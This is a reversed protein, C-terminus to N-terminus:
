ILLNNNIKYGLEYLFVYASDNNFTLDHIIEINCDNFKLNTINSIKKLKWYKSDWYNPLLDMFISSVAEVIIFILLRRFDGMGRLVACVANYGLIFPFGLFTIRMYDSAKSIAEEPTGMLRILQTSFISGVILLAFAIITVFSLLTGVAENIKKHQKAGSLQSIYVQCGTAM